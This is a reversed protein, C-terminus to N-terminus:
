RSADYNVRWGRNRNPTGPGRGPGDEMTSRYLRRRWHLLFQVFRNTLFSVTLLLVVWAGDRSFALTTYGPSHALNIAAKTNSM